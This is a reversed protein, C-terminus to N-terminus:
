HRTREWERFRLIVLLVKFSSLMVIGLKKYLSLYWEKWEVHEETQVSSIYAVGIFPM